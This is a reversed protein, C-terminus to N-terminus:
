GKTNKTLEPTKFQEFAKNIARQNANRLDEQILKTIADLNSMTVEIDAIREFELARLITYVEEPTKGMISWNAQAERVLREERETLATLAEELRVNVEGVSSELYYHDGDINTGIKYILNADILIQTLEDLTDSNTPM